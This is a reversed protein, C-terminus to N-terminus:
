GKNNTTIWTETTKKFLSINGNAFLIQSSGDKMYRIVSGKGTILRTKEIQSSDEKQYNETIIEDFAKANRAKTSKVYSQLIDGNSLYKVILGNQLTISFTSGVKKSNSEINEDIKNELSSNEQNASDEERDKEGKKELEVLIKTGNEFLGWFESLEQASPNTSKRIGFVLNEKLIKFHNFTDDGSKFQSCLIVSSDNPYMLKTKEHLNEILNYDINYYFENYYNKESDKFFNIWNELNPLVRWPCTWKKRLIRGPPNRFYLSLLLADEDEDYISQIDPEFLLSRYLRQKLVNSNLREEFIRDGFDWEREKEKSKMMNEFKEVRQFREFDSIEM